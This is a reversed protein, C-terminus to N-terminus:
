DEDSDCDDDDEIDRDYDYPYGNTEMQRIVPHDPLDLSPYFMIDSRQHTLPSSISQM